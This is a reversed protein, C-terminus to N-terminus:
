TFIRQEHDHNFLRQRHDFSFKVRGEIIEISINMKFDNRYYQISPITYDITFCSSEVSFHRDCDSFLQDGFDDCYHEVFYLKRDKQLILKYFGDIFVIYYGSSDLKHFLFVRETDNIVYDGTPLEEILGDPVKKLIGGGRRITFLCTLLAEFLKNIRRNKFFEIRLEIHDQRLQILDQRRFPYSLFLRERPNEIELEAEAEEEAVWEEEAEAEVYRTM